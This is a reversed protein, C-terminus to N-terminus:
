KYLWYRVGGQHSCAGRGTAYSRTGDNCIAGIRKKLYQVSFNNQAYTSNFNPCDFLIFTLAIFPILLTLILKKM